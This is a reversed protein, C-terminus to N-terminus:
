LTYGETFERAPGQQAVDAVIFDHQHTGARFDERDARMAAMVVPREGLADHGALADPTGPMVGTEIQASALGGPRRRDTRNRDPFDRQFIAM